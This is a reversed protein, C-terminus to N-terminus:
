QFPLSLVGPEWARGGAEKGRSGKPRSDGWRPGQRPCLSGGGERGSGERGWVQPPFTPSSVVQTQPFSLVPLWLWKVTVGPLWLFLLVQMRFNGRGRPNERAEGPARFVRLQAGLGAGSGRPPPKQGRNNGSCSVHRRVSQSKTKGAM